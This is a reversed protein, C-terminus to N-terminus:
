SYLVIGICQQSGGILTAVLFNDEVSIVVPLIPAVYFVVCRYTFSSVTTKARWLIQHIHIVHRVTRRGKALIISGAGRYIGAIWHNGGDVRCATVIIGLRPAIAIRTQSGCNEILSNFPTASANVYSKSHTVVWSTICVRSRCSVIYALINGFWNKANFMGSCGIAQPSDNAISFDHHVICFSHIFHVARATFHIGHEVLYAFACTDWATHCVAGVQIGFILHAVEDM